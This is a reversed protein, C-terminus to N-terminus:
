FYEEIYRKRLEAFAYQGAEDNGEALKIQPWDKKPMRTYFAFVKRLGAIEDKSLQPMDLPTDTTICGAVDTNSTYGKDICYKHLPTGHFPSFAYASTTDFLIQRNLEITDFILERTEGPFGIINNVSLAIKADALMQSASIFQSNKYKKKLFKNRFEENGHELGMSIRHCGIDKLIKIRRLNLTEVRSQLWFPLKFESYIEAFIDFEQESMALFTESPFYIYEANWKEVLCELEKRINELNKKRFYPKTGVNRYLKSISPSNCFTCSYPCGRNTEVPITRYVKGAMPRLFCAQEFVSYDPIPLKDLGIPERVPNKIIQGDIEKHCINKINRCDKNDKLRNCLEVLSEEGEGINVFTVAPHTFIIEPAFTPFVGGVIVPVDFGSIEDLLKKGRDWTSELVSLGVLDPKFEKMFAKFDSQCNGKLRPIEDKDFQFPRVGVFEEQAKDSLTDNELYFTTYFVKVEINNARLSAVLSGIGVPPPNLQPINPYAILIKFQENM